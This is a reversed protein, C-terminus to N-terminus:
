GESVFFTDTDRCLHQVAMRATLLAPPFGGPPSMRQGSFYVGELGKIVPPYTEIKMDKPIKTMWSGKWNACYREYTLPTAIECVEIKGEAEPIQTAIANKIVIAIKEKEEIYRGQEKAEKWFNYTDGPLQITMATKGKPSYTPDAAYNSISLYKYTQDSLNITEKLKFLYYRPYKTLDANIGLTVFTAMTPNVNKRMKDLWDAKLPM